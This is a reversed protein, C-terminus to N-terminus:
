ATTARTGPWRSSPRRRPTIRGNSSSVWGPSSASSPGHDTGTHGGCGASLVETAQHRGRLQRRVGGGKRRGVPPPGAAPRPQHRRALGAQARPGRRRSAHRGHPPPDLRPPALGLRLRNGGLDVGGLAVGSVPARLGARVDRRQVARGADRRSRRASHRRLRHGMAQEPQSDSCPRAGAGDGADRRGRGRHPM